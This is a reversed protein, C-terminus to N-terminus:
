DNEEGELIEQIDLLVDLKGAYYGRTLDNHNALKSVTLKTMEDEIFRELEAIRLMKGM